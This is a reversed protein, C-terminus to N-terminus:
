GKKKGYLYRDHNVSADNVNLKIKGVTLTLPDNDWNVGKEKTKLFNNIAKRILVAVPVREKEAELKLRKMQGPELYVQARYLVSM